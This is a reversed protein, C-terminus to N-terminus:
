TISIGVDLKEWGVVKACVSIHVVPIGEVKGVTVLNFHHVAVAVGSASIWKTLTETHFDVFFHKYSVGVM